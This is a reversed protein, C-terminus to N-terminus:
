TSRLGSIGSKCEDAETYVAVVASPMPIVFKNNESFSVVPNITFLKRFGLITSSTKSCFYGGYGSGSFCYLVMMKINIFSICNQVGLKNLTTLFGFLSHTIYYVFNNMKFSAVIDDNKTRACCACYYAVM